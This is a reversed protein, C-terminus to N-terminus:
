VCRVRKDNDNENVWYDRIQGSEERLEKLRWREGCRCRWVDGPELDLDRRWFPQVRMPPRCVRRIVGGDGDRTDHPGLAAPSADGPPM